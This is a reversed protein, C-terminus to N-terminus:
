ADLFSLSPVVPYSFLCCTLLLASLSNTWFLKGVSPIFNLMLIRCHLYSFLCCTLLLASLSYTWFLKCVSPIFNLMLIRCHLYSLTLSYVAHLYCHLSHTRESYSVSQLFSILCWFVVTFTLCPLLISLMYTVICLTLVTYFLKSGSPIFNLMLIRCHLYLCPLLISLM